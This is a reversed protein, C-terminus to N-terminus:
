GKKRYHIDVPIDEWDLAAKVYGADKGIIADGRFGSPYKLEIVLQEHPMKVQPGGAFGHGSDSGEEWFIGKFIQASDIERGPLKIMPM